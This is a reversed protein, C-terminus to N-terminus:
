LTRARARDRRGTCSNARHGETVSHRWLSPTTVFACGRETQKVSMCGQEVALDGSAAVDIRDPEFGGEAGPNEAFERAMFAEIAEPGSTTPRDEQSDEPLEQISDGAHIAVYPLGLPGSLRNRSCEVAQTTAEM